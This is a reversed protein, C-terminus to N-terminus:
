LLIKQLTTIFHDIHQKEIILPPLLRIIHTGSPIVIIGEHQLKEIYEQAPQSLEIGKMLGLGRIEKIVPYNQALQKLKQDLYEGMEEVHALIHEQKYIQFVTEVAKASLPNSGYTTGHDGPSLVDCAKHGIGIAGVPVGCGLAKATVVIDPLIGYHEYAFMKGTRGMGCQIEDLILLISNQECWSKLDHLFQKEATYIGGEGQITELFIACTHENILAKVSHSDNFRAFRVNSLLPQFPEQYAKKGTISLSGITRGHFSNKMAIIQGNHHGTKLYHYKLAIKIAGEIAETGSNTFFVKQMKSAQNFLRAANIAPENYFLNSTHTLMELQKQLAATYIKHHYGLACVGIGSGFDLYEKGTQDYLYVGEGHDLIVPYRKYVPIFHKNATEILNNM